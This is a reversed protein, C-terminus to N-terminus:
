RWISGGGRCLPDLPEHTTRCHAAAQFLEPVTIAAALTDKVLSIFTHIAAAGRRPRGTAPHHAADGAWSMGIRDFLRRGSGKPVSGIVARIIEM